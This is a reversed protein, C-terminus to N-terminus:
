HFNARATNQQTSLRGVITHQLPTIPKNHPLKATVHLNAHHIHQQLCHRPLVVPTYSKTNEPARNHSPTTKSYGFCDFPINMTGSEALTNCYLM